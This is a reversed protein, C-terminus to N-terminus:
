RAADSPLLPELTEGLEVPDGTKRLFATVALGAFLGKDMASPVGSLMVLPIDSFSPDTRAWQVFELATGSALKFDSVILSPRRFYEANAFWGTNELYRRADASSTVTRVDGHYNLKALARRFLFVDAEDDEILLILPKKADGQDGRPEM